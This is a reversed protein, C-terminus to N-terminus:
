LQDGNEFPHALPDAGLARRVVALQEGHVALIQALPGRVDRHGVRAIALQLSSVQQRELTGVYSWISARNTNPEPPTFTEARAPAAGVRRILAEIRKVHAAEHDAMRGLLVAEAGTLRRGLQAYAFASFRELKLPEGLLGADTIAV